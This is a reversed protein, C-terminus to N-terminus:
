DKREERIKFEGYPTIEYFTVFNDNEHKKVIEYKHSFENFVKKVECYTITCVAEERDKLLDRLLRYYKECRKM